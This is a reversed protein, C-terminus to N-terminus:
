RLDWAHSRGNISLRVRNAASRAQGHSETGRGTEQLNQGSVDMTVKFVTGTFALPSRYLQTVPSGPNRDISLGVGASMLLSVAERVLGTLPTRRFIQAIERRSREAFQAQTMGLRRRVQRLEEPSM